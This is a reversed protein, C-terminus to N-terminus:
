PSSKDPPVRRAARGIAVMGNDFSVDAEMNSICNAKMRLRMPLQTLADKSINVIVPKAQPHRFVGQISVARPNLYRLRLVEVDSHDYVVLTSKDPRKKRLTSQVWFGDEDIRAIIEDRDDFVKLLSIKLNENADKDLVLMPEKMMELVIHPFVTNISVNSGFFIILAKDPVGCGNPITPTADDAPQLVGEYKTLDIEILDPRFWFGLLVVSGFFIAGFGVIVAASFSRLAFLFVLFSVLLAIQTLTISFKGSLALGGLLLTVILATYPSEVVRSIFAQMQGLNLM